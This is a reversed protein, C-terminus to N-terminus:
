TKLYLFSSYNRISLFLFILFSQLGGKEIFLFFFPPPISYCIFVMHYFLIAYLYSLNGYILMCIGNFRNFFCFSFLFSHIFSSRVNEKKIWPIFLFPPTSNWRNWRNWQEILLSMTYEKILNLNVM